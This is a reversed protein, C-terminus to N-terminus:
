AVRAEGSDLLGIAREVAERVDGKTEPTVSARDEFAADLTAALDTFSM